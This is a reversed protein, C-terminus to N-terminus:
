APDPMWHSGGMWHSSGQSQAEAAEPKQPPTKTQGSSKAVNDASASDLDRFSQGSDNLGPRGSASDSSGQFKTSIRDSGSNLLFFPSKAIQAAAARCHGAPAEQATQATCRAGAAHCHAHGQAGGGAAADPVPLQVLAGTCAHAFADVVWAGRFGKMDPLM